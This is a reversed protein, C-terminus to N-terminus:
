FNKWEIMIKMGRLFITELARLKEKKRKKIRDLKSRLHSFEDFNRIRDSNEYKLLKKKRHLKSRIYYNKLEIM